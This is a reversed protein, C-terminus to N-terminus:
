PCTARRVAACPDRRIPHTPCLALCRMSATSCPAAVVPDDLLQGWSPGIGRDPQHCRASSLPVM